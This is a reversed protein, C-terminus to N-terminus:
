PVPSFFARGADLEDLLWPGLGCRVAAELRDSRWHVRDRAFFPHPDTQFEQFAQAMERTAQRISPRESVRTLWAQLKPFEDSVPYGLFVASRLHPYVAIDALSFADVFYDGGALEREFNAHHKKLMEAARAPADPVRAQLSRNLRAIGMIYLCGDLQTDAILELARCRARKAPDTPMLPPAPCKEELYECIVTSDYLVTEGDQLAPVEDRPNRRRLEDREAATRLAHKEFAIAKEYLAVRVKYAFPSFANDFLRM